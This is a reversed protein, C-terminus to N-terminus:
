CEVNFDVSCLCMLHINFVWRGLFVFFHGTQVGNEGIFRVFQLFRSSSALLHVAQTNTRKEQKM